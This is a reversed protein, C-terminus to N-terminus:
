RAFIQPSFSIPTSRITAHYSAASVFLADYQDSAALCSGANSASVQMDKTGTVVTSGSSITFDAHLSLVPGTAGTGPADIYVTGSETFSGPYPGTAVGSASYTWWSPSTAGCRLTVEFMGTGGGDAGGLMVEGALSPPTSSGGAAVTTVTAFTCCAVALLGLIRWLGRM